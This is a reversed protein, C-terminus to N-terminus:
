CFVIALVPHLAVEEHALALRERRMSFCGGASFRTGSTWDRVELRWQRAAEGRPRKPM